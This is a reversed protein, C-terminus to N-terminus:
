ILHEKLKLVTIQDGVSISGEGKHVLNQGFHIKNNLARYGALTRTPEKGQIATEQDITIVNCRACLKVGYFDIDGIKIHAMIDENHAEGGRFVINPRFRNIPIKIELKENLQDLTAEGLLLFPFGDSLSTINTASHQKRDTERLTEDPMYVLRCTAKLTSSFWEDIADSVYKGYCTDDWITFYGSEASQPEFPIVIGNDPYHAHYVAIGDDTISTKILAMQGFERQSLFRNNADVLMWRRDYELGRDTVNTSQLEIGGLSKIPYIFLQSVQLM